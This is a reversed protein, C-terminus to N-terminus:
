KIPVFLYLEAQSRYFEISPRSQDFNVKKIIAEFRLGIEARHKEWNAISDKYYKGGPITWKQFGFKELNEREIIALCARYEDNFMTGYFKRGKLQWNIANELKKFADSAGQPGNPSVVYMVPIDVIEVKLGRGEAKAQLIDLEDKQVVWPKKYAPTSTTDLMSKNKKNSERGFHYRM